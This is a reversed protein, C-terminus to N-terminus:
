NFFLIFFSNKKAKQTKSRKSFVPVIATLETKSKSKNNNTKSKNNNDNNILQAKM